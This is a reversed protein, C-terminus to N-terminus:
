RSQFSRRRLLRGSTRPCTTRGKEGHAYRGPDEPAIAAFYRELDARAAPAANEQILLSASTHRCFLTLLGDRLGLGTVWPTIRFTIDLLGQRETDIEVIGTVQRM